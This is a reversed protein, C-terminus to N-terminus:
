NAADLGLFLRGAADNDWLGGLFLWLFAFDDGDAGAGAGIVALDGRQVDLGAVLDQEAFPRAGFDLNAAFVQQDHLFRVNEPDNASKRAPAGACAPASAM